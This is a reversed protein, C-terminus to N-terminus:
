GQRKYRGYLVWAAIQAAARGVILAVARGVILAAARGVILPPAVWL